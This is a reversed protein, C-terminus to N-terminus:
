EAAATSGADSVNLTTNNRKQHPCGGYKGKAFNCNHCLVQFGSPYNNRRLWSYLNKVEKRHQRGGGEIHDISLFEIQSEQCCACEPAGGSYHSLLEFRYRIQRQREKERYEPHAARFKGMFTRTEKRWADRNEVRKRKNRAKWNELSARVKEPNDQQWQQTKAKIKEPHALRYRRVSARAKEPNARKWEMARKNTCQRCINRPQNRRKDLYFASIERLTSCDSCPYLKEQPITSHVDLLTPHQEAM